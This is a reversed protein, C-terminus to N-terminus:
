DAIDLPDIAVGDDGVAVETGAVFNCLNLKSIVPKGARISLAYGPHLM